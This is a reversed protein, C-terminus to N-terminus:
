SKRRSLGKEATGGLKRLGGSAIEYTKKKEWDRRHNSIEGKKQQSQAGWAQLFFQKQDRNYETKEQSGGKETGLIEKVFVGEPINLRSEGNEAWTSNCGVRSIKNKRGTRSKAKKGKIGERRGGAFNMTEQTRNSRKVEDRDM